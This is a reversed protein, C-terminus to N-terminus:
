LYFMDLQCRIVRLIVALHNVAGHEKFQIKQDTHDSSSHGICFTEDKEVSFYPTTIFFAFGGM